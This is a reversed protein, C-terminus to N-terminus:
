FQGCDVKEFHNEEWNGYQINTTYKPDKMNKALYSNKRLELIQYPREDDKVHVVCDGVKFKHIRFHKLVNWSFLSPTLQISMYILISPIVIVKWM